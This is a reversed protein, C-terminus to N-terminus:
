ELAQGEGISEVGPPLVPIDIVMTHLDETYDLRRPSGRGRSMVLSDTSRNMGRRQVEGEVSSDTMSHAIGKDGGTFLNFDLIDIETQYDEVRELIEEESLNRRKLKDLKRAIRLLRRRSDKYAVGRKHPSFAIMAAKTGAIIYGLIAAPSNREGCEQSLVAVAVGGGIILATALSCVIRFIWAKWNSIRAERECKARARDIMLHLNPQGSPEEM